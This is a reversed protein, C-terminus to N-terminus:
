DKDICLGKGGMDKLIKDIDTVSNRTNDIVLVASRKDNSIKDGYHNEVQVKTGTDSYHQPKRSKLVTKVADMNFKKHTKFKGGIDGNEDVVMIPNGKNDKILEDEGDMAVAFLEDEIIMVRTDFVQNLKEISQESNNITFNLEVLNIGLENAVDERKARPNEYMKEFFKDITKQDLKKAM